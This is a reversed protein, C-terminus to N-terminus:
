VGFFEAVFPDAPAAALAAAPGRQLIRGAALVIVEGGLAAVDRADHTVVLSSRGALVAALRARTARRAAVDLAALPEDLLLAAPAAALARAIAVRQREGGSLTAPRRDALEAADAATLAADAAARRTARDGPVGFAVNGRVTLHPFLGYGQPVYGIQRAEPPLDIGAASDFLVRGDLVVRGQAGLPAGAILRLLTSKGAGNPGIIVASTAEFAVDLHPVQLRLTVAFSM